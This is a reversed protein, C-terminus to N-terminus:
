HGYNCGIVAPRGNVTIDVDISGCCGNDRQNEYAEMAEVDDKFAFRVNDINDVDMDNVHQFFWHRASVESVFKEM